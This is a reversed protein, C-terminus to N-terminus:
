VSHPGPYLGSVMTPTTEPAVRGDIEVRAGAPRSSLLLAAGSAGHGLRSLLLGAALGAAAAGALWAWPARRKTPTPLVAGERRKPLLQALAQAMQRMSQFRRDPAKELAHELVDTWLEPPATPVLKTLPTPANQMQQYLLQVDDAGTFPPRGAVMEY